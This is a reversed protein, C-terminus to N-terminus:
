SRTVLTAMVLTVTVKVNDQWLRMDELGGMLPAMDEHVELNVREPKDVRVGCVSM